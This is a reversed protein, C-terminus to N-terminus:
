PLEVPPLEPYIMGAPAYIIHSSSPHRVQQDMAEPTNENCGDENWDVGWSNLRRPKDGSRTWITTSHGGMAFRGTYNTVLTQALENNWPLGDQIPLGMNYAERVLGPDKTPKSAVLKFAYNPKPSPERPNYSNPYKWEEELCLGHVTAVWQGASLTSGNDGHIGDKQQSLYYAAARSFYKIRGTLLFFCITFILALSHGQCAGQTLQNLIDLISGPHVDSNFTPINASAKALMLKPEMGQEQLLDHNEQGIAYGLRHTSLEAM